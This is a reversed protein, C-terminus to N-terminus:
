GRACGVCSGGRNTSEVLHLRASGGVSTVGDLRRIDSRLELSHPPPGYDVTMQLAIPPGDGDGDAREHKCYGSKPACPCGDVDVALVSLALSPSVFSVLARNGTEDPALQKSGLFGRL